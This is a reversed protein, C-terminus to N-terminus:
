LKPSLIKRIEGPDILRFLLALGGYVVLFLTSRIAFDALRMGFLPLTDIGFLLGIGLAALLLIRLMRPPLFRVQYDKRVYGYSLVLMVAYSASTSIAAGVMAYRPILLLNLVVNLGAGILTSRFVLEPKNKALLVTNYTMAWSLPIVGFLLIRAPLIGDLFDKSYLIIFIDQAYFFVLLLLPVLVTLLYANLKDVLGIIIGKKGKREMIGSISPLVAASAAGAFVQFLLVTALVSSYIGVMASPYLKTIIITDIYGLVTGAIGSLTSYLAFRALKRLLPLDWRFRLRVKMTFYYIGILAGIAVSFAYAWSILFFSKTMGVALFFLIGLLFLARQLFYLLGTMFMRKMAQFYYQVLAGLNGLIIILAFIDIGAAALPSKFYSSVLWPKFLYVLLLVLSMTCVRFLLVASLIDRRRRKMAPIFRVMAEGSGLNIFLDLFMIGTLFAYFLGFEELPVNKALITRTFYGALMALSNFVLIILSGRAIKKHFASVMDKGTKGKGRREGEWGKKRAEKGKGTKKRTKEGKPGDSSSAM